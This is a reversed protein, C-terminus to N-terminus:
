AAILQPTDLVREFFLNQANERIPTLGLAKAQRMWHENSKAIFFCYRSVGMYRMVYEYSEILRLTVFPSPKILELPGAMQCWDVKNSSLFGIIKKDRVAVVTPWHLDWDPSGNARM